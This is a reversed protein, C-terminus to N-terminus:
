SVNREFLKDLRKEFLHVIFLLFCALNMCWGVEDPFEALFDVIIGTNACPCPFVLDSDVARCEGVARDAVVHVEKREFVRIKFDINDAICFEEVVRRKVLLFCADDKKSGANDFMVDEVHVHEAVACVVGDVDVGCM